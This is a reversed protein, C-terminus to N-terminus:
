QQARKWFWLNTMEDHGQTAALVESIDGQPSTCLFLLCTVFERQYGMGDLPDINGVLRESCIRHVENAWLEVITFRDSKKRRAKWRNKMTREDKDRALKINQEYALGM